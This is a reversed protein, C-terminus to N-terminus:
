PIEFTTGPPLYRSPPLKKIEVWTGDPFTEILMGDRAELVSHGAALAKWYAIKTAAASLEPIQQELFDLAAEPDIM